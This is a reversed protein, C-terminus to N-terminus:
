GSVRGGAVRRRDDDPVDFNTGVAASCDEVAASFRHPM